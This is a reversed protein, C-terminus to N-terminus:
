KLGKKCFAENRAKAASWEDDNPHADRWEKQASKYGKQRAASQWSRPAAFFIVLGANFLSRGIAEYFAQDKRM